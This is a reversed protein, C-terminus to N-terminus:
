SLLVRLNSSVISKWSDVFSIMTDDFVRLEAAAMCFILADVANLREKDNRAPIVVREYFPHDVNWDIFTTRGRQEAAYVPGERGFNRIGFKVAGLPTASGSEPPEAQSGAQERAPPRILLSSQRDIFQESSKHDVQEGQQKAAKRKIQGRLSKIIPGLETELKDRIGQTLKIDRKTFEIGLADDLKGSVFLEARFRIFDPHRSVLGLLQAEAIERNNRLVYFGSKEVKYGHQENVKRDEYDHLAVLRARIIDTTTEGTGEDMYKVEFSHDSYVMSGPKGDLWLPDKMPVEKGNVYLRRGARIFMRYTQGLKDTLTKEFAGLYRRKFGESKTIRILTGSKADRLYTDYIRRLDTNAEGFFDRVFENKKSMSDVDTINGLLRGGKGKTVITLRRGLSLSATVLGMGFRGLDTAANRRVESGLRSAQDLVQESMGIGDDAIDIVVDGDVGRGVNVWVHQAEADLANDVIDSIAYYNDYGLYRLSDLLKRANPRNDLPDREAVKPTGSRNKTM